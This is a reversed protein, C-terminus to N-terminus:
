LYSLSSVLIISFVMSLITCTAFALPNTYGPETFNVSTKCICPIISVQAYLKFVVNFSCPPLFKDLLIRIVTTYVTGDRMFGESMPQMLSM